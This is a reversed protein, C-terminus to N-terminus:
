QPVPDIAVCYRTSGPTKRRTNPRFGWRGFAPHSATPYSLRGVPCSRRCSPREAVGEVAPTCGGAAAWFSLVPKVRASSRERM